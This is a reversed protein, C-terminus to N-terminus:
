VGSPPGGIAERGPYYMRTDFEDGLDRAAQSDLECRLRRIADIARRHAQGVKGTKPYPLDLRGLAQQVQYLTRGIRQHDEAEIAIRPM